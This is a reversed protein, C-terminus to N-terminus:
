QRIKNSLENRLFPLIANIIIANIKKQQRFTIDDKNRKNFMDLFYCFDDYGDYGNYANDFAGYDYLYNILKRTFFDSNLTIFQKEEIAHLLKFLAEQTRVDANLDDRGFKQICRSGIPYLTNGNYKNKITHLYKINEKGCICQSSASQDEECDVLEWEYVAEEWTNAISHDIVRKILNLLYNNKM